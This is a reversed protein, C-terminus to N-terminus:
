IEFGGTIIFKQLLNHTKINVRFAPITVGEVKEFYAKAKTKDITNKLEDFRVYENINLENLGSDMLNRLKVEDLGLLTAIKKIQDNKANYRYETIYERFTKGSEIRIVGSQVDHIFINAYKQEEQTLSAFSKHLEDLTKQLEIANVGEKRLVKLYKDFRSNLNYRVAM